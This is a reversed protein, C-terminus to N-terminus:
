RQDPRFHVAFALDAIAQNLRQYESQPVIYFANRTFKSVGERGLGLADSKPKKMASTLHWKIIDNFLQYARSDAEAKKPPMGMIMSAYESNFQPDFHKCKKYLDALGRNIYIRNRRDYEVLVPHNSVRMLRLVCNIGKDDCPTASLLGIRSKGSIAQCLAIGAESQMTGPNKMNHFEDFILLIGARVLNHFDMTAVFNDDTNILYGHKPQSRGSGRLGAYTDLYAIPVQYKNCEREWQGLTSLPAIIFASLGCLKAIKLAILTKGSGTPSTDMYAPDTQIIKLVRKAHEVQHPLLLIESLRDRLAKCTCRMAGRQEDAFYGILTLCDLDLNM